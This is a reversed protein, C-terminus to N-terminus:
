KAHCRMCLASGTNSARLFKPVGAVGHPNHCTACELKTNYLPLGVSAPDNLHGDKSVLNGDFVFGIPHDDRLDNNQLGGYNGGINMGQGYPSGPYYVDGISMMTNGGVKGHVFADIATTGDHCSLCMLSNEGPQGVVADLTSSQYVKFQATPLARNWLMQNVTANHPTHCFVCIENVTSTGWIATTNSASFDHKSGVVGAWVASSSAVLALLCAAGAAARRLFRQCPQRQTGSRSM